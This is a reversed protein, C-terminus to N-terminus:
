PLLPYVQDLYGHRDFIFIHVSGPIKEFFQVIRYTFFELLVHIKRKM